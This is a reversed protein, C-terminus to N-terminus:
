ENAREADQLAQLRKSARDVVEAPGSPGKVRAPAKSCLNCPNCLNKARRRKGQREQQGGAGVPQGSGSAAREWATDGKGMGARLEQFCLPRDQVGKKESSYICFGARASATESGDTSFRM